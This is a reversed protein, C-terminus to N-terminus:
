SLKAKAIIQQRVRHAERPAFFIIEAVCFVRYSDLALAFKSPQFTRLQSM